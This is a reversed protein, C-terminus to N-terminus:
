HMSELIKEFELIITDWGYNGIFSKAYGQNLIIEQNTLNTIKEFVKTSNEVYIVGNNVGFEKFIGPLKTAIVPKHMAFYEYMKIPVIDRIVDDNYAPLLCIDAASLLQPIESYPKQGTMIVRDGINLYEILNKLSQFDDGYGVIMLKIQPHLDKNKYIDLILERLGSFTYLWGMFFLLIDNESIKYNKRIDFRKKEPVEFRKFDVGQPLVQTTNPDVGLSIVYDNLAGNITLVKDSKKMINIVISEALSTFPKPVLMSPNDVCYYLYPLGFKKALKIGWYNTITSSYGIIVDPHFNMIQKRIELFSSFTFSIYDVIPIKVFPPRIYHISAGSYFRNVSKNDIKQSIVSFNETRWLQDFGIILIDHGRKSLLEMLHHQQHPGKKQWEADQLLLIKM